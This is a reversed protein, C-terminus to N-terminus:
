TAEEDARSTGVSCAVSFGLVPAVAVLIRLGALRTLTAVREVRPAESRAKTFAVIQILPGANVLVVLIAHGPDYNDRAKITVDIQCADIVAGAVSVPAM